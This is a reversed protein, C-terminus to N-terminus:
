QGPWALRLVLKGQPKSTACRAQTVRGTEMVGPAGDLSIRVDARLIAGSIVGAESVSDRGRGLFRVSSSSPIQVSKGDRRKVSLFRCSCTGM